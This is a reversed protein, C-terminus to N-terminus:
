VPWRGRISVAELGTTTLRAEGRVDGPPVRDLPPPLRAQELGLAIRADSGGAEM